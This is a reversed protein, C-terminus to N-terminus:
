PMACVASLVGGCTQIFDATLWLKPQRRMSTWRRVWHNMAGRYSLDCWVKEWVMGKMHM